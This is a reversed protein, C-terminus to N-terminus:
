FCVRIIVISVTPSLRLPLFRINGTFSTHFIAFFLFFFIVSVSPHAPPFYFTSYDLISSGNQHSEPSSVPVLSRLPSVVYFKFDCVQFYAGHSPFSPPLLFLFFSLTLSWPRFHYPLHFFSFSLSLDVFEGTNM